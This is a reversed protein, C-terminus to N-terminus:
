DAQTPARLTADESLVFGYLLHDGALDLRDLVRRRPFHKGRPKALKM